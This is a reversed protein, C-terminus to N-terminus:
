LEKAKLAPKLFDAAFDSDQEPSVSLCHQIFRGGLTLGRESIGHGLFPESEAVHPIELRALERRSQVFESVPIVEDSEGHLLLTRSKHILETDWDPKHPFRGSFGLVGGLPKTVLPTAFRYASYLAMMCGQSFGGLILKDSPIDYAELAAHVYDMVVPAVARTRELRSETDIGMLSFWQYAEMGESTGELLEPAHPCLWATNPLATSWSKALDLLDWGNAGYGHLLIVVSDAKGTTPEIAPFFDLSM